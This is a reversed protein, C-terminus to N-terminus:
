TEIKKRKLRAWANIKSNIWQLNQRAVRRVLRNKNVELVGLWYNREERM